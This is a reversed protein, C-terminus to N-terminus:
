EYRLAQAPVTRATAFVQLIITAFAAVLAGLSCQLLILILSPLRQEFSALWREMLLYSTPLAIVSALMVPAMMKSTLWGFIDIGTAGLAKRIGIERVRREANFAALGYLGILSVLVTVVSGATFLRGRQDDGSYFSALAQDATVVEIPQLPAIKNWVAQLRVAVDAPAGDVRVAAVQGPRTPASLFYLTPQVATRPSQLRLDDVVGVINLEDRGGKADREIRLGVAEHPSALGLARVASMNVVVNRPAEETRTEDARNARDFARGSLIRTVYISFFRDSTGVLRFTPRKGQDGVRGVSASYTTREIGPAADSSTAGVVGPISRVADLFATRQAVSLQENGFSPVLILGDREFGVDSTRLYETQAFITAAAACFTIAVAFQMAVLLDRFRSADRGKSQGALVQAPVFRSIIVSPYAGAGLGLIIAAAFVLPLLGDAGFGQLRLDGGIVANLTPIAIAALALGVAASLFSNLVSETLIQAFLRERTAGLVARMAVERARLGAKATALNTYNLGAVILTLVALAAIALVTEGDGSELLHVDQFRVLDIHLRSSPDAGIDRGARRRVLDNFHDAVLRASSADDAKVFTKVMTTGWNKFAAEDLREPILRTLLETELETRKPLDAIVGTIRYTREDGDIGIRLERGIAAGSGFYQLALRASIVVGDPAALATAPNGQSFHFPFLDFFNPDVLRVPQEVSGDVRHVVATRDMVRTGIVNTAESQAVPLLEGMTGFTTRTPAGPLTWTQQVAYLRDSGPLWQEYSTEFHVYLTLLLFAAMGVALGLLSLSFGFVDRKFSRWLGDLADGIV